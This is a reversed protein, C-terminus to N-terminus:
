YLEKREATLNSIKYKLLIYDILKQEDKESENLIDNEPFKIKQNIINRSEEFIKKKKQKLMAIEGDSSYFYLKGKYYQSFINLPNINNNISEIFIKTFENLDINGNKDEIIRFVVEEVNRIIYNQEFKKRNINLAYIGRNLDNIISNFYIDYIFNKLKVKM